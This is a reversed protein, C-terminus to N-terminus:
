TVETTDSERCGWPSDHALSRQGHSEGSLFLRSHTAMGEELPYELGPILGVGKIDEANCASEKGSAGGPFGQVSADSEWCLTDARGLSAFIYAGSNDSALGGWVVSQARRESQLASLLSGLVVELGSHCGQLFLPPPPAHHQQPVPNHGRAGVEAPPIVFLLGPEGCCGPRPM